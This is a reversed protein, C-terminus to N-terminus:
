EVTETAHRLFVVSKNGTMTDSHREKDRIVEYTAAKHRQEQIQLVTWVEKKKDGAKHFRDGIALQDLTTLKNRQM